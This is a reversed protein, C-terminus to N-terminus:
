KVLSEQIAKLNDQLAIAKPTDRRLYEISEDEYKNTRAEELM